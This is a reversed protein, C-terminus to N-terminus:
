PMEDRVTKVFHRFSGEDRTYGASIAALTEARQDEAFRQLERYHYPALNKESLMVIEAMLAWDIEHKSLFLRSDHPLQKLLEGVAVGADGTTISVMWPFRRLFPPQMPSRPPKWLVLLSHPPHSDIVVGDSGALMEAVPGFARKVAGIWVGPAWQPVLHEEHNSDILSM